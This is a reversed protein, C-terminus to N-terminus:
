KGVNKSCIMAAFGGVPDVKVTVPLIFHVESVLILSLLGDLYLWDGLLVETRSAMKKSPDVKKCIPTQSFAIPLNDYFM